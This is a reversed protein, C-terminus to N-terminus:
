RCFSGGRMGRAAQDLHFHDAHAANYDPSLTTAFVECAGDRIERLFAQEEPTGNWDGLVRVRRGGELRFGAIDIADATAHESWNASGAIRRCNFSGFHEIRDLPKGFHRLAAPRVIEREWVFLAAAVPCAVTLPAPQWRTALSGGTDLTVGDAYGCQPGSVPPFPTFAVGAQALLQRCQPADDALQALKTGTFPGIPALLSLPTWPLREPHRRQQDRITIFAVLALAMVIILPVLRPVHM